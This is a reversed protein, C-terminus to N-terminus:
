NAKAPAPAAAPTAAAALSASLTRIGADDPALGAAKAIDARARSLDGARAALSASAYWGFPDAPVLAIGADLDTRAAKLDGAAVHARARDILAEGRLADSMSALALAADFAGRARVPDDGALWANGAQVHLHPARLDNARVADAAAQAFAAGAAAWRERAVYAQALCLRADIGGTLTWRNAAAIAADPSTRVMAACSGLTMRTAPAPPGVLPAAVTQAALLLILIAPM